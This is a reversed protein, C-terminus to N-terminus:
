RASREDVESKIVDWRANITNLREKLADADQQTSQAVIDVCLVNVNNKRAENEALGQDLGQLLFINIDLLTSIYLVILFLNPSTLYPLGSCLSALHILM